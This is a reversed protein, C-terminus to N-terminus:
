AASPTGVDSLSDLESDPNTSIPYGEVPSDSEFPLKGRDVLVSSLPSRAQELGPFFLNSPYYPLVPYSMVLLWPM